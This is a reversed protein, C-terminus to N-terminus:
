ARKAADLVEKYISELDQTMRDVSFGNEVTRRGADGTRRRKADDSLLEVIVTALEATEGLPVVAGNFGHEVVEPIGGAPTVVVPLRSAMAELLALPLGEFESTMLFLDMARLYPKVDDKLGVFHVRSGLGLDVCQKQLDERCPGDGVLVFEADAVLAGVKSAVELWLDLRKQTRFVAVTGIVPVSTGISLEARIERAERSGAPLGDLDIGNRVVRVPVASSIHNVISDAVEQSVAIVMEQLRWTLLNMRRTWPHYREQLNHETYVVPTGTWAGVIRAVVGSLPLHAHVLDARIRKLWGAVRPARAVMGLPTSGGLCEVGVGLAGLENALQDKWPLFFGVSHEVGGKGAKVLQPLLREAGGRGLGKILHAVRIPRGSLHEFSRTM